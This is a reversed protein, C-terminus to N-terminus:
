SPNLVRVASRRTQGELELLIVEPPAFLRLPLGVVGVGRTVYLWRGAHRYLGAPYDRGWKSNVWL